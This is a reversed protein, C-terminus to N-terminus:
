KQLMMEVSQHKLLVAIMNFGVKALKKLNKDKM